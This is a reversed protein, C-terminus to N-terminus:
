TTARRHLEPGARPRTRWASRTPESTATSAERTDALGAAAPGRPPPSTSPGAVRDVAGVDGATVAATGVPNASVATHLPRVRGVAIAKAGPPLTNTPSFPPTTLTNSESASAVGGLHDVEV